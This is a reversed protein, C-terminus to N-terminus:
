RKSVSCTCQHLRRAHVVRHRLVDKPAASCCGQMPNCARMHHQSHVQTKQKRPNTQSQMGAHVSTKRMQRYHASTSTHFNSTLETPQENRARQENTARACLPITTARACPPITNTYKNRSITRTYACEAQKNSQQRTRVCADIWTGLPYGVNPTASEM